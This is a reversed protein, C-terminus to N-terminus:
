TLKYHKLIEQINLLTQKTEAKIGGSVISKTGPKIGIAGFLFLTNKVRVAESFPLNRKLNKERTFYSNKYGACSTLCFIFIIFFKM